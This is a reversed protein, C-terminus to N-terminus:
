SSAKLQTTKVDLKLNRDGRLVEFKLVKNLGSKDVLSQLEAATTIKKGDVAVIVDGRRIGGLAAPTNELVRMVLVGKVEPINFASNPDQNNRQALEPTLTIMQVGVYPHPVVGGKALTDKIAKM